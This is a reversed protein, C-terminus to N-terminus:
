DEEGTLCFDNYKKIAKHWIRKAKDSFGEDLLSSHENLSDREEVYDKYAQEAAEKLERKKKANEHYSYIPNNMDCSPMNNHKVYALLFNRVLTSVTTGNNEAKLKVDALLDAPLKVNIRAENEM